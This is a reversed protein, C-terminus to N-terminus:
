VFEKLKSFDLKIRTLNAFSKIQCEEICDFGVRALWTLFLQDEIM